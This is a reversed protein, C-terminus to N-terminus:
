SVAVILVALLAITAAVLLALTIAAGMLIRKAEATLRTRLPRPDDACCATSDPWMRRESGAFLSEHFAAKAYNMTPAYSKVTTQKLELSSLWRDAWESFPINPQPQYEGDDVTVAIKRLAREAQRCNRGVRIKDSRGDERVVVYYLPGDPCSCGETAERFSTWAREVGCRRSHRAQLSAM